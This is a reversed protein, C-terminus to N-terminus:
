SRRVIFLHPRAGGLRIVRAHVLRLKHTRTVLKVLLGSRTTLLVAKGGPRLVRTMESVFGEYLYSLSGRSMVRRGWPLNCLLKDVSETRLPLRRADAQLLNATVQAAQLNMRADEIARPRADSGILTAPGLAAREILITATGCMPDLVTEDPTPDSLVCMAYAATPNLAALGHTVRSRKHLARRSLRLGMLCREQEIEVMVEYDFGTLDVRGGTAMCLGAGAAAAIQQSNYEHHGLRQASVRFSPADPADHLATWTALAGDLPVTEAWRQVQELGEEAPSQGDFDALHAFINEISRLAMLQQPPGGYRLFLRGYHQELLHAQPLRETVEAAAIDELGGLVTLYYHTADERLQQKNM